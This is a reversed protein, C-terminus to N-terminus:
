SSVLRRCQVGCMDAPCIQGASEPHDSLVDRRHARCRDPHPYTDTGAVFSSADRTGGVEQLVQQELGGRRAARDVDRLSDIGDATLQVREGRALVGTVVRMHEVGVQLERDIQHGIDHQPPTTGGLIDFHLAVDDEFLDGHTVVIGLVAEAVHEERGHEAIVRHSTRHDATDLRDLGHRTRLQMREVDPTVCGFPHDHRHGAVDVVVHHHRQDSLMEAGPQLGSTGRHSGTLTRSPDTTLRRQEHDVAVPFLGM